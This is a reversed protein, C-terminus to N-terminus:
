PQAPHVLRAPRVQGHKYGPAGPTAPRRVRRAGRARGLVPGQKVQLMGVFGPGPAGACRAGLVIVDFTNGM